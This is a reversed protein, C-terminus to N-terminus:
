LATSITGPISLEQISFLVRVLSCYELLWTNRSAKDPVYVGV